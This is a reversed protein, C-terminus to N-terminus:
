FSSRALPQELELHGGPLTAVKAGDVEIQVASVGPLGTLTWVLAKFEGTEAFSGGTSELAAAM